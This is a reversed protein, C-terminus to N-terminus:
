KFLGVLFDWITQFINKVESVSGQGFDDSEEETPSAEVMENVIIKTDPITRDDLYIKMSTPRFNVLSIPNNYNPIVIDSDEFTCGGNFTGCYGYIKFSGSGDQNTIDWTGSVEVMQKNLDNIAIHDHNVEYIESSDGFGWDEGSKISLPLTPYTKIATRGDQIKHISREEGDYAVYDNNMKFEQYDERSELYGLYTGGHSLSRYNEISIHTTDSLVGGQGFEMIYRSTPTCEIVLDRNSNGCEVSYPSPFITGLNIV